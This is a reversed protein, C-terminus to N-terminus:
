KLCLLINCKLLLSPFPTLIEKLESKGRELLPRSLQVGQMHCLEVVDEYEKLTLQRYKDVLDATTGGISSPAVKRAAKENARRRKQAKVKQKRKQQKM